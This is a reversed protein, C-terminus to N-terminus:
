WRRSSLSAGAFLGIFFAFAKGLSDVLTNVRPTDPGWISLAIWAGLCVVTLFTIVYLPTHEAGGFLWGMLSLSQRAETRSVEADSTVQRREQADAVQAGPDPSGGAQSRRILNPDRRNGKVSLQSSEGEGGRGCVLRDYRRPQDQCQIRRFAASAVLSVWISPHSQHTKIRALQRVKGM